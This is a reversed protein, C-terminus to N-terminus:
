FWIVSTHLFIYSFCFCTSTWFRFYSFIAVRNLFGLNISWVFKGGGSKRRGLSRNRCAILRNWTDGGWIEWFDLTHYISLYIFLSLYNSYRQNPPAYRKVTAISAAPASDSSPNELMTFQIIRRWCWWWWWEEFQICTRNSPEPFAFEIRPSAARVSDFSISSERCRSLFLSLIM